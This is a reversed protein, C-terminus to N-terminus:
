GPRGLLGGPGYLVAGALWSAARVFGTFSGTRSLAGGVGGPRAGPSGVTPAGVTRRRSIRSRAQGMTMALAAVGRRPRTSVATMPLVPDTSSNPAMARPARMKLKTYQLKPKRRMPVVPKVAWAEPAPSWASTRAVNARASRRAPPM